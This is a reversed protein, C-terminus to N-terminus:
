LNLQRGTSCSQRWPCPQHISEAVARYSGPAWLRILTTPAQSKGTCPLVSKLAAKSIRLIGGEHSWPFIKKKKCKLSWIFMPSTYCAKKVPQKGEVWLCMSASFQSERRGKLICFSERCGVARCPLKHQSQVKSKCLTHPPVRSFPNFRFKELGQLSVTSGGTLPCNSSELLKFPVQNQKLHRKKGVGTDGTM